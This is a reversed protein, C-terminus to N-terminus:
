WWAHIEVKDCVEPEVYLCRLLSATPCALLNQDDGGTGVTM